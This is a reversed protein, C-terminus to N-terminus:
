QAVEQEILAMLIAILWARAEIKSYGEVMPRASAHGKEDVPHLTVCVGMEPVTADVDRTYRLLVAEHMAKAADLSGKYAMRASNPIETYRMDQMPVELCRFDGHYADGAEVKGLLDKLAQKRDSM